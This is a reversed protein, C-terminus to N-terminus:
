AAGKTETNGSLKGFGVIDANILEKEWEGLATVPSTYRAVVAPMLEDIAHHPKAGNIKAAVQPTIAHQDANLIFVTARNNQSTYCAYIYLDGAVRMLVASGVEGVTDSVFSAKVTNLVTMFTDGIAVDRVKGKTVLQATNNKVIMTLETDLIDALPYVQGQLTFM